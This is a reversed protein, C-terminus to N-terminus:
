LVPRAQRSMCSQTAVKKVSDWGHRAAQIRPQNCEADALLVLLVSVLSIMLVNTTM